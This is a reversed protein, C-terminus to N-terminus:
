SFLINIFVCRLSISPPPHPPRTRYMTDDPVAQLQRRAMRTTLVTFFFILFKIPLLTIVRRSVLGLRVCYMSRLAEYLVDFGLYVTITRNTYTSRVFFVFCFTKKPANGIFVLLISGTRTYRSRLRGLRNHTRDGTFCLFEVKSSFLMYLTCLKDVIHTLYM